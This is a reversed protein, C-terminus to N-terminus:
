PLKADLKTLAEEATRGSGYAIPSTMVREIYDVMDTTRDTALFQREAAERSPFAHAVFEDGSLPPSLTIRVDGVGIKMQIARMMKSLNAAKPAKLPSAAPDRAHRVAQRM